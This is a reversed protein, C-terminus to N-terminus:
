ATLAVPEAVVLPKKRPGSLLRGIWTYRVFVQYTLRLFATTVTCILLFKPNAPIPSSGPEHGNPSAISRPRTRGRGGPFMSIPFFGLFGHTVGKVGLEFRSPRAIWATM